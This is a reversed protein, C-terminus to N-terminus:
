HNNKKFFYDKFIIQIFTKKINEIGLIDVKDKPIEIKGEKLFKEVSENLFRELKEIGGFKEVQEKTLTFSFENKRELCLNGDNNERVSINESELNKEKGVNTKDLSLKVCIYFVMVMILYIPIKLGSGLRSLRSYLDDLKNDMKDLKSKEEAIPANDFDQM